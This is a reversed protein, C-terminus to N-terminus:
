KKEIKKYEYLPKLEYAKKFFVISRKKPDESWEKIKINLAAWIRDMHAIEHPSNGATDVLFGLPTAFVLISDSDERRIVGNRILYEKLKASDETIPHYAAVLGGILHLGFMFGFMIFFAVIRVKTEYKQVKLIHSDKPHYALVYYYNSVSDIIGSRTNEMEVKQLRQSLYPDNEIYTTGKYLAYTLPLALVIAIIWNRTRQKDFWPDVEKDKGSKNIRKCYNILSNQRIIKLSPGFCLLSVFAKIFSWSKKEKNEQQNLSEMIKDKKKKTYKRM